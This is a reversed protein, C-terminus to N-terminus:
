SSTPLSMHPHHLAHIITTLRAASPGGYVPGTYYQLLPLSGAEAEKQVVGSLTDYKSLCGRRSCAVVPGDPQKIFRVWLRNAVPKTVNGSTSLICHDVTVRPSHKHRRTTNYNDGLICRLQKFIMTLLRSVCRIRPTQPQMHKLMVRAPVWYACFM